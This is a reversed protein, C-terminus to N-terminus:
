DLMACLRKWSLQPTHDGVAAAASKIYWWLTAVQCGTWLKHQQGLRSADSFIVDVMGRAIGAAACFSPFLWVFGYLWSLSLFSLRMLDEDDSAM